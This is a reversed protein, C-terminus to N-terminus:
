PSGAGITREVAVIQKFLTWLHNLGLLTAFLVCAILGIAGCWEIAYFVVLQPLNLQLEYM